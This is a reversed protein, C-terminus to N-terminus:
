RAGDMLAIVSLYALRCREPYLMEQVRRVKMMHAQDARTAQDGM